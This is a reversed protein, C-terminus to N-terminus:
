IYKKLQVSGSSGLICDGERTVAGGQVAPALTHAERWRCGGASCQLPKRM